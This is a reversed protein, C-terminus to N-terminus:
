RRGEWKMIQKFLKENWIEFRDGIGVMIVENGLQAFKFLGEPIVFRGQRDLDVFEAEGFIYRRKDRVEREEISLRLYRDMEWNFGTRSFGWVCSDLGKTLVLSDNDKLQARFKKPLIVRNKGTLATKYTGLFM